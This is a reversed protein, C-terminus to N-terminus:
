FMSSKTLCNILLMFSLGIVGSMMLQGFDVSPKPSHHSLFGTWGSPYQTGERGLFCFGHEVSTSLDRDNIALMIIINGSSRGGTALEHISPGLISYKRSSWGAQWEQDPCGAEVLQRALGRLTEYDLSRSGIAEIYTNGGWNTRAASMIRGDSDKIESFIISIM